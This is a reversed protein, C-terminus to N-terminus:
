FGITPAEVGTPAMLLTACGDKIGGTLPELSADAMM